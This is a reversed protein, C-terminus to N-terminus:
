HLCKFTKAQSRIVQSRVYHIYRQQKPKIKENKETFINLGLTIGCSALIAVCITTLMNGNMGM